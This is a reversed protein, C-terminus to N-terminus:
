LAVWGTVNAWAPRKGVRAATNTIRYRGNVEEGDYIYYTGSLRRAVKATSASAYMATNSLTVADGAQPKKSVPPPEPPQPTGAQPINIRQGVNIIHPNNIGPNEELLSVLTVNHASAIRSLSDGKKVIYILEKSTPPQPKPEPTSLDDMVAAVRARFKTMNDGYQQQWHGIDGHNSAYGRKHAQAHDVVDKVPINYKLCLRACYEVAVRMVENYYARNKLNDECIEFQIYAPSYNYSGKSGAGCGFCCVDLPLTEVVAVNKNKDYGIWAHVQKGQGAPQAYNWHNGYQNVGVIDPADVYRRLEPNNAGTSHVVIGKPTMKQAAIYARNKTQHAKYVKISM